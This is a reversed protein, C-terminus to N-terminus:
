QGMLKFFAWGKERWKSIDCHWLHQTSLHPKIRQNRQEYRLAIFHLQNKFWLESTTMATNHQQKTKKWNKPVRRKDKATSVNLDERKGTKPVLQTCCAEWPSRNGQEWHTRAASQAHNASVQSHSASFFATSSLCSGKTPQRTPLAAEHKLEKKPRLTQLWRLFYNENLPLRM